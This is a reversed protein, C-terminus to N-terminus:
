MMYFQPNKVQEIEKIKETWLEWSEKQGEPDDQFNHNFSDQRCLHLYFIYRRRVGEMGGDPRKTKPNISMCMETIYTPTQILDHGELHLNISM